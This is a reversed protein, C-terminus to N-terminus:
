RKHSTMGGGTGPTEVMVSALVKGGIVVQVKSGAAITYKGSVTKPVMISLDGAKDLKLKSVTTTGSDSVVQVLAHKGRHVSSMDATVMAKKGALKVAVEGTWQAPAHSTKDAISVAPAPYKLSHADQGAEPIQVWAVSSEGCLQVVPLYATGPTSPFKVSLGFDDFQSDPLNGGSWIVESVNKGDAKVTSVQWGAKAQPKVSAFGAPIQIKVTDTALGGTCGHPVRVFMQGYGGATAPTGYLQITAHASAPIASAISVATAAALTGLIARAISKNLKRM